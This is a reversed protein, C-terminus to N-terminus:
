QTKRVRSPFQFSISTLRNTQKRASNYKQFAGDNLNEYVYAISVPHSVKVSWM